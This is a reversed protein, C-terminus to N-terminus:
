VPEPKIESSEISSALVDPFGDVTRSSVIEHIGFLRLRRFCM